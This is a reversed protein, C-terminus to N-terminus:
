ISDGEEELSRGLARVDFGSAGLAESCRRLLLPRERDTPPAVPRAESGPAASDLRGLFFHAATVGLARAQPDESAALEAMLRYCRLDLDAPAAPASALLAGLFIANM